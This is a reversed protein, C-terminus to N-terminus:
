PKPGSTLTTRGAQGVREIASEVAGTGYL